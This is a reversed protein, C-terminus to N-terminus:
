EALGSVTQGMLSLVLLSFSLSLKLKSSLIKCNHIHVRPFAALLNQLSQAEPPM